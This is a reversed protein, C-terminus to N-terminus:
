NGFEFRKKLRYELARKHAAPSQTFAGAGGFPGALAQNRVRVICVNSAGGVKGTCTMGDPMQVKVPYDTNTAISLGSIGSGPVDQVVRATQFANPDTGGSSPDIAATLPGAGDQNIQRYVMSIQGKDDSTPLGKQGGQGSMDQVMTETPYTNRQGGIGAVGIIPLNFLNMMQRKHNERREARQEERRQMPLKQLGSLDDEVGVGSAPGKNTPAPAKSMFAAIVAEANVPGNGQTKGLPPAAGSKIEADRIIATDAQAGCANVVCDRPTGDTVSLGPMSVGNAGEVSRILGHASAGAVLASYVIAYYM